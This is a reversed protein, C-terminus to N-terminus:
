GEVEEQSLLRMRMEPPVNADFVAPPVDAMSLGAVEGGPNLGLIGAIMSAEVVGSAPIYLGGLFEDETAFSLYWWCFGDEQESAIVNRLQEEFEERTAFVPHSWTESM